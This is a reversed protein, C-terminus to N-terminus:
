FLIHYTTNENHPIKKVCFEEKASLLKSENILTEPLFGDGIHSLNTNLLILSLSPPRTRKMPEPAEGKDGSIM